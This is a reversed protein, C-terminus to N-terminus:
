EEVKEVEEANRPEFDEVVPTTFEIEPVYDGFLAKYTNSRGLIKDDIFDLGFRQSDQEEIDAILTVTFTIKKKAM